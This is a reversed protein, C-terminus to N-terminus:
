RLKFIRLLIPGLAGESGLSSKINSGPQAHTQGTGEATTTVATTTSTTSTATTTTTTTTDEPTETCTTSAQKSCKKKDDDWTNAGNCKKEELTEGDCLIYGSCTACSQYKGDPRSDCSSICTHGTGSLLYSMTYKPHSIPFYVVHEIFLINARLCVDWENLM